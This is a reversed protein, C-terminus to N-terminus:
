PSDGDDPESDLVDFEEHPCDNNEDPSFRDTDLVLANTDVEYTGPIWARLKCATCEVLYNM